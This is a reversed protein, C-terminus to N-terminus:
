YRSRRPRHRRALARLLVWVVAVFVVLGLCLVLALLAAMALLESSALM